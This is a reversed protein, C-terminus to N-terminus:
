AVRVVIVWPEYVVSTHFVPLAVAAARLVTPLTAVMPERMTAGDTVVVYWSYAAFTYPDHECGSVILTTGGTEVGVMVVVFEDFQYLQIGCSTGVM